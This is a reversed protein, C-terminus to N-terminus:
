AFFNGHKKYTEELQHLTEIRGVDAWQQSNHEFSSIRETKALRIYEPIIPYVAPTNPLLAPLQPAVIAIGSYSMPTAGDQPQDSWLYSDTQRNHWGILQNSKNFLLQRSSNRQSVALTILNHQQLHQHHLAQLNITSLIDVNHILIPDNPLFLSSAHHLGGGTDLLQQREDSIHIDASFSNRAVFECIQDAFHHVNIVIHHIGVATLRRIVRELLTQNGIEILAKPKSDTLPCLRTGLGASPIFAQMTILCFHTQQLYVFINSM